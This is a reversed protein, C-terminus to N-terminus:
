LLSSSIEGKTKAVITVDYKDCITGYQIKNMLVTNAFELKDILQKKTISTSSSCKMTSMMLALLRPTDAMAFTVPSGFQLKPCDTKKAAVMRVVIPVGLM